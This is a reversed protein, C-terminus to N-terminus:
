RSVLFRYHVGTRTVAKKGTVVMKTGADIWAFINEEVDAYSDTPSVM